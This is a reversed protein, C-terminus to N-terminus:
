MRHVPTPRLNLPGVLVDIIKAGFEVSENAGVIVRISHNRLEITLSALIRYRREIVTSDDVRETKGDDDSLHDMLKSGAKIVQDPCQGARPMGIGWFSNPEGDALRPLTKFSGFFLSHYTADGAFRSPDNIRDLRIPLLFRALREQEPEMVEAVSVLVSKQDHCAPENGVRAEFNIRAATIDGNDQRWSLSCFEPPGGFLADFYDPQGNAVASRFRLYISLCGSLYRELLQPRFVDYKNDWSQELHAIRDNLREFEEASFESRYKPDIGM